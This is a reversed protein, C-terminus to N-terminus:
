LVPKTHFKANTPTQEIAWPKDEKQAKQIFFSFHLKRM